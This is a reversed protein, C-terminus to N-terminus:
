SSSGSVAATGMAGPETIPSNLALKVFPVAAPAKPALRTSSYILGAPEPEKGFSFRVRYSHAENRPHRVGRWGRKRGPQWDELPPTGHGADATGTGRAMHGSQAQRVPGPRQDAVTGRMGARGGVGEGGPKAEGRDGVMGCGSDRSGGQVSGNAGHRQLPPAAHSESIGTKFVGSAMSSRKTSPQSVIVPRGQFPSMLEPPLDSRALGHGGGLRARVGDRPGCRGPAGASAPSALVQAKQQPTCHCSSGFRETESEQRAQSPRSAQLPRPPTRRHPRRLSLQRAKVKAKVTM